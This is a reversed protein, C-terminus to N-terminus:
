KATRNASVAPGSTHRQLACPQMWQLAAFPVAPFLQACMRGRSDSLVVGRSGSSAARSKASQFQLLEPDIATAEADLMFEEPVSPPSDTEPDDPEDPEDEESPCPQAEFVDIYPFGYLFDNFCIKRPLTRTLFM